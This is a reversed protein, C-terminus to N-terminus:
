RREGLSIYNVPALRFSKAKGCRDCCYIWKQNLFVLDDPIGTEVWLHDCIVWKYWPKRSLGFGFSSVVKGKVRGIGLEQTKYKMEEIRSDLGSETSKPFSKKVM